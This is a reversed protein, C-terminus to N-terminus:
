IYGDVLDRFKGLRKCFIGFLFRNEKLAVRVFRQEVFVFFSFFSLFWTVLAFRFNFAKSCAVFLREFVGLGLAGMVSLSSQGLCYEIGLRDSM